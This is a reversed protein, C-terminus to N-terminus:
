SESLLKLKTMKVNLKRRIVRRRVSSEEESMLGIDWVVKRPFIPGTVVIERVSLIITKCLDYYSDCVEVICSGEFSKNVLDDVNIKMLGHEGKLKYALCCHKQWIQAFTGPDLLTDGYPIKVIRKLFTHKSFKENEHEMTSIIEELDKYFNRNNTGTLFEVKYEMGDPEEPKEAKLVSFHGDTEVLPKEPHSVYRIPTIAYYTYESEKSEDNTSM